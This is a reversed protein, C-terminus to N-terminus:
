TRVFLGRIQRLLGLLRARHGLTENLFYDGEFDIRDLNATSLFAPLISGYEEMALRYDITLPEGFQAWFNLLGKWDFYWEADARNTFDLEAMREKVGMNELQKTWSLRRKEDDRFVAIPVIRDFLDTFCRELSEREEKTRLFSFAESSVLISSTCSEGVWQRFEAIHQDYDPLERKESGNLRMPTALSPRILCHALAWANARVRGM